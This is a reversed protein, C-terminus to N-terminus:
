GEVLSGRKSYSPQPIGRDAPVYELFICLVLHYLECVISGAESLYTSIALLGRVDSKM